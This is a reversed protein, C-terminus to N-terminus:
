KLQEREQVRREPIIGETFLSRERQLTKQSLRSKSAAELLKLQLEGLEPSILRLLPQGSKVVDNEGVLVRDVLGALPASVVQEQSPPM